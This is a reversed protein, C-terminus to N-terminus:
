VYIHIYIYIYTYEESERGKYNILFYQTYNGTSYLLDKIKCIRKTGLISLLEVELVEGMGDSGPGQLQPWLIGVDM